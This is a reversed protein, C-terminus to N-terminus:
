KSRKRLQSTDTFRACDVLAELGSNKYQRFLNQVWHVTKTRLFQYEPRLVELARRPSHGMIILCILDFKIYYEEIEIQFSDKGVVEAPLTTFAAGEASEGDSRHSRRSHLANKQKGSM